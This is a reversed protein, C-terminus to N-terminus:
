PQKLVIVSIVLVLLGICSIGVWLAGPDIRTATELEAALERDGKPLEEDNARAHLERRAAVIDGAAFLSRAM